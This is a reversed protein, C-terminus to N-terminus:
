QQQQQGLELKNSNDPGKMIANLEETTSLEELVDRIKWGRSILEQVRTADRVGGFMEFVDRINYRFCIPCAM